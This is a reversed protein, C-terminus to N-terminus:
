TIESPGPRIKVSRLKTRHFYDFLFTLILDTQKEVANFVAYSTCGVWGRLQDKSCDNDFVCYFTVKLLWLLRAREPFVDVVLESTRSHSWVFRHLKDVLAQKAKRKWYLEAVLTMFAIIMGVALVIYVGLMSMIGIRKRSLALIFILFCSQYLSIIMYRLPNQVNARWSENHNQIPNCARPRIPWWRLMGLM